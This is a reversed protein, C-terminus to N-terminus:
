VAAPEAEVADLLPEVLSAAPMAVVTRIRRTLLAAVGAGAVM